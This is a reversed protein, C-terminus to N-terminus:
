RGPSDDPEEGDWLPGHWKAFADDGTPSTATGLAHTGDDGIQVYLRRGSPLPVALLKVWYSLMAGPPFKSVVDIVKAGYGDMDLEGSLDSPVDDLSYDSWSSIRHIGLRAAGETGDIQVHGVHVGDAILAGERVLHDAAAELSAIVCAHYTSERSIRTEAEDDM